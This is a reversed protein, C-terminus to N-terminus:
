SSRHGVQISSMDRLPSYPHYVWRDFLPGSEPLFAHFRMGLHLAIVSINFLVRWGDLAAIHFSPRQVLSGLDEQINWLKEGEKM